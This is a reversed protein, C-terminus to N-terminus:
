GDCFEECPDFTEYCRPVGDKFEIVSKGLLNYLLCGDRRHVLLSDNIEKMCDSTAFARAENVTACLRLPIDDGTFNACVLFGNM